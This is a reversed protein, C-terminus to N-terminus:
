IGCSPCIAKGRSRGTPRKMKRRLLSSVEDESKIEDPKKELKGLILMAELKRHRWLLWPDKVSREQLDISEMSLVKRWLRMANIFHQLSLVMGVLQVNGWQQGSLDNEALKHVRGEVQYIGLRALEGPKTLLLGTDQHIDTRMKSARDHQSTPITLFFTNDYDLVAAVNTWLSILLVIDKHSRQFLKELPADLPFASSPTTFLRGRM